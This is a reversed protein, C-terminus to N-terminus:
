EQGRGEPHALDTLLGAVASAALAGAPVMWYWDGGWEWGTGFVALGLWFSVCWPCDLLKVSWPLDMARRELVDRQGMTTPSDPHKRRLLWGVLAAMPRETLTDHTVLLSLRYTALLGVLVTATTM